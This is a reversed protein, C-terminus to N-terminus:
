GVVEEGIKIPIGGQVFIVGPLHQLQAVAPNGMLNQSVTGSPGKFSTSVYAKGSASDMSHIGARDGRLVAQRAGSADLLVASVAYGQSNCHAVAAAVAESALEASVRHTTMLGQAHSTGTILALTACVAGGALARRLLIQTMTGGPNPAPRAG